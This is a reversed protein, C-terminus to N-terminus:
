KCHPKPIGLDEYPISFVIIGSAYPAIDYQQYYFDLSDPTIIFSQPNFNEVILKKYDDFYIGPM